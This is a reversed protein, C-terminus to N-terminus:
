AALGPSVEVVKLGLERYAESNAPSGLVLTAGTQGVIQRKRQAPHSPDLPAWAAGAKNIALVAVVHWGSKEFCTHVISGPAVRCDNALHHALRNAARDLEGYSLDVDWAAVAAADPQQQAQHEFLRHACDDVIEPDEQNWQIIQELESQSMHSSTAPEADDKVEDLVGNTTNSSM